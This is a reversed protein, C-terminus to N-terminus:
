PSGEYRSWLLDRLTCPSLSDCLKTEAIAWLSNNATGPVPHCEQNLPPFFLITLLHHQPFQMDVHHLIFVLDMDRVRVFVGFPDLVQVLSKLGSVM